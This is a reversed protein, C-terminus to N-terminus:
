QRPEILIPNGDPDELMLPTNAGGLGGEQVLGKKILRARVKDLEPPHFTLLNREFIGQFLGVTNFGQRLMRWRQEDTDPFSESRHGGDMVKFGLSEYFEVSADVDKVALSLSFKGLDM